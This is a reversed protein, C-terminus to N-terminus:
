PNRTPSANMRAGSGPASSDASNPRQFLLMFARHRHRLTHQFAPRPIQFKEKALLIVLVIRTRRIRRTDSPIRSKEEAGASKKQVTRRPGSRLQTIAKVIQALKMDSRPFVRKQPYCALKHAATNYEHWLRGCSRTITPKRAQTQTHCNPLIAAVEEKGPSTLFFTPRLLTKSPPRSEM